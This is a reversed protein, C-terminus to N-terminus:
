RGINPDGDIHRRHPAPEPSLQGSDAPSNIGPVPNPSPRPTPEEFAWSGRTVSAPAFLHAPIPLGVLMVVSIAVGVNLARTRRTLPLTAM